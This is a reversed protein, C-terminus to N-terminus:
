VLDDIRKEKNITSVTYCDRLIRFIEQIQKKEEYILSFKPTEKYKINLNRDKITQKIEDKKEYLTKIDIKQDSMRTLTRIFNLNKLCEEKFDDFNEVFLGSSMDTLFNDATETFQEQLNFIRELAIHSLVIIYNNFVILDIESDFGLLKEDIENLKKGEFYAFVGKTYIKKFKTVRRLFKIEFDKGQGKRNKISFCYFLIDEVNIKKTENDAKDFSELVNQYNKIYSNECIEIEGKKCGIPSYSVQKQNLCTKLKILILKLLKSYIENGINPSFSEYERGKKLKKSFYFDFALEETELLNIMENLNVKM